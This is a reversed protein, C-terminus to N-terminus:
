DAGFTAERTCSVGVKYFPGRGLLSALLQGMTLFQLLYRAFDYTDRAGAAERGCSPRSGVMFHGGGPRGEGQGSIAELGLMRRPVGRFFDCFVDRSLRPSGRAARQVGGWVAMGVGGGPRGRAM